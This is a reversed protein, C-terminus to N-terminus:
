AELSITESLKLPAAKEEKVDKPSEDTKTDDKKEAAEKLKLEEATKFASLSNLANM